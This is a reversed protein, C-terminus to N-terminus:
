DRKKLKKLPDSKIFRGKFQKMQMKRLKGRNEIADKATGKNKDQGKKLSSKLRDRWYGAAYKVMVQKKPQKLDQLAM